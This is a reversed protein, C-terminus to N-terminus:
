IGGIASSDNGGVDITDTLMPLGTAPNFPEDEDFYNRRQSQKYRLLWAKDAALKQQKALATREALAQPSLQMQKMIEQRTALCITYITRWIERVLYLVGALLLLIISIGLLNDM